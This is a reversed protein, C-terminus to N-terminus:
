RTNNLWYILRDFHKKSRRRFIDLLLDNRHLPNKKVKIEERQWGTISGEATLHEVLDVLDLLEKLKLQNRDIRSLEVKM